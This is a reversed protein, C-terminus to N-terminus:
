ENATKITPILLGAKGASEGWLEKLRKDRGCAFRYYNYRIPNKQYYDQHYDEAPFFTKAPLLKTVVPENFYESQDLKNKSQIALKQQEEDLYFIATRYSDGNDCFQGRENLPDVNHWFVALLTEYNVQTPDYIIKVAEYHGTNDKSVQKYTPNNIHGGTYGSETSLVGDLKDYPPEMCWFCGGAFIATKVKTNNQDLIQKDDPWVLSSFILVCLTFALLWVYKYQYKM